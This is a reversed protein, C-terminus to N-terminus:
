FANKFGPTWGSKVLKYFKKVRRLFNIIHGAALGITITLIVYVVVNLFNNRCLLFDVISYGMLGGYNLIGSIITLIMKLIEYITSLIM